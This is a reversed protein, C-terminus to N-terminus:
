PTAGVDPLHYQGIGGAKEVIVKCEDSDYDREPFRYKDTAFVHLV